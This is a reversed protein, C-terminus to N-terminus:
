VPGQPILLYRGSVTDYINETIQATVRGPLDSDIGTLLSASIVTGVMVQYPSAPDQLAHSNYIDADVGQDLFDLKRGQLNQDNQLDLELPGGTNGASAVDFPNRDIPDAGSPVPIGSGPVDSQTAGATRSTLQFFVGAERGQQALRAQRIREARAADDEPSPRFPLAPAPDLGLDREAGVVAPGIDGPLPPGLEM